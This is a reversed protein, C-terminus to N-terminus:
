DDEFCQHVANLRIPFPFRLSCALDFCSTGPVEILFGPEKVVAYQTIFSFSVPDFIRGSPRVSVDVSKSFSVQSIVAFM